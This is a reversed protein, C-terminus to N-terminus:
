IKKIVTIVAGVAVGISWSFIVAGMGWTYVQLIDISTIGLFSLEQILGSPTLVTFGVDCSFDNLSIQTLVGSCQYYDTM